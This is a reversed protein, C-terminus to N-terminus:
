VRSVDKTKKGLSGTAGQRRRLAEKVNYQEKPKRKSERRVIAYSFVKKVIKIGKNRVRNVRM